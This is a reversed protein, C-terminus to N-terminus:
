TQSQKKLLNYNKKIEQKTMTTFDPHHYSHNGIIHNEEAMRKIIDPEEEVYHGTVFFTAPVKEEQLVDLVDNTFGAEYGNDFTLYIDKETNKDIYFVSYDKIMNEYQGIEPVKNNISKKYGWGHAQVINTQWLTTMLLLSIVILYKRM